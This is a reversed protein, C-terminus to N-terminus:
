WILRLTLQVQRAGSGSSRTSLVGNSGVSNPNGPHNLVNFFDANFRLSVRETIAMRKFLSADLGWQRVSPLYQNRWPPLNDSSTTRQVTGNKLPIWVTNTGYWAYMPDNKDPNAPWPILPKAAPKYNAPVGMIGNPKGTVPDTSNIKDAPIYGNWWLYGPNCVGSTCDQIPYKYGYIEVKGTGLSPFLGTPLSFYTSALSGMGAIQWGGIVRDLVGGANKGLLKGKGFPLDVIWNWRVRHKPLTTDRAYNLFRNREDFDEPVAGPLFQNTQAVSGAQDAMATNTFANSIVYFLQFGYGQAYRRELEFQMGNFNSYGTKKYVDLNGYVTQDWSRLAVGSYEGTPVPNGTTMWYIFSPMASNQAVRQDLYRGRNGVYAVRAVTDQTLEKEITLNWDHVRSTPQHPDFYFNSTSGRSLSAVSSADSLSVVDASNLGAIVTPVSRMMYNPIGDPSRVAANYSNGYFRATTPTNSRMTVAWGRVALPFYSLRYGSRVVFPRAGNTLRYALGIRPGFNKYEDYMLTQPLGAEKYSEFKAGLSQYKEVIVPLTAGIRYMEELPAGLVIARNDTDFGTMFNNKERYAPQYEWRLGLNLTLRPSVKYNDQFYLAYERGRAYYYGRVFQNSYTMVGLFMNALGFGTYATAGPNNRPTAPDYLSTGLSDWSHSGQPAQQDPLINMRDGRWHFGFQLEHRGQIKTANDDVIFYTFPSGQTNDSTFSYNSFGTDSLSPWGEVGLPNPLGLDETYKVGPMGTGKWRLHHAATALVENFFTPSFTRVWSLALSDSEGIFNVSGAIKDLMPLNWTQQLSHERGRTYRAFFSDRETFRHDIRTTTTYQRSWNDGVGWWNSDLLPNIPLTPMPTVSFLHKALPSIRQLDIVNTQGGYSIQQRQWTVPATTWPDYIRYLNGRSDVLGRMDGNRMEETPVSGNFRLAGAFRQAEYAFFFFTRDKGNYVKPIYVPGGVSAGFENRIYKPASTWTDTRQRAVGIANNRITEFLAGHLSNTGSKTSLIVTTPRTYKASSNNTEVKFEQITDLGPPRRGSTYGWFRDGMAAGDLLMEGSGTKSGYARITALGTEIGPVTQLLSNVSRGNIPLQEIRDRELVHGLTPSDVTVMPTVDGVTVQTAAQGVTLTVDVVASQAVQVTLAGEFKQMGPFEVQLDYRGAVVGAFM